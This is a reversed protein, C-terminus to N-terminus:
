SIVQFNCKLGTGTKIFLNNPLFLSPSKYNFHIAALKTNGSSNKDFLDNHTAVFESQHCLDRLQQISMFLSLHCHGIYKYACTFSLCKFHNTPLSQIINIILNKVKTEFGGSSIYLLYKKRPRNPFGDTEKQINEQLLYCHTVGQIVKPLVYM